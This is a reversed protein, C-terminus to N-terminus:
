ESGIIEIHRCGHRSLVFALQNVAVEHIQSADTVIFVADYRQLNYIYTERGDEYFSCIKYGCRIPYGEEQSVAIPSRTTAHCYVQVSPFKEEIRKGALLAPYMCEETGLVLIKKVQGSLQKISTIVREALMNCGSTYEGVNCGIRPNYMDSFKTVKYATECCADAVVTHPAYTELNEIIESYDSEQMKILYELTIGNEKLLQINDDSVRNVVSAAVFDMGKFEPHHEKMRTVINILTKGTTLEDDVIIVTGSVENLWDKLRDTCLGQEVAHSHEERFELVAGDVCERTTHIYKCGEGFCEAVTAGIATATEAFGIVMAIHSYKERLKNGLEKMMNLALSPSVPMHKAQLENVLLYKRKSNNYRKAIKIYSENMIMYEM